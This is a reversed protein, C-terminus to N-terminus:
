LTAQRLDRVLRILRFTLSAGFLTIYLALSTTVAFALAAFPAYPIPPTWAFLTSMGTAARGLGEWLGDPVAFAYYLQLIQEVVYMIRQQIM